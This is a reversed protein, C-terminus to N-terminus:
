SATFIILEFHSAMLHLFEHLGPRILCRGENNELEEFHILTEDM